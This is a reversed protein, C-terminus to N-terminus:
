SLCDGVVAFLYTCVASPVLSDKQLLRKVATSDVAYNKGYIPNRATAIRHRRDVDDVRALTDRQAMDRRKGM